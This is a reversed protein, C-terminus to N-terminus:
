RSRGPSIPYEKPYIPAPMTAASRRSFCHDFIRDSAGICTHLISLLRMWLHLFHVRILIRGFSFFSSISISLHLTSFHLLDWKRRFRHPGDRGVREAIVGGGWFVKVAEAPCSNFSRVAPAASTSSSRFLVEGHADGGNVSRHCHLSILRVM